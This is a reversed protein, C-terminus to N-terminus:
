SMRGLRSVLSSLTVKPGAKFFAGPTLAPGQGDARNGGATNGIAPPRSAGGLHQHNTLGALRIATPARSALVEAVMTGWRSTRTNRAFGVSTV